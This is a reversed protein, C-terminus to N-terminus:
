HKLILMLIIGLIFSILAYFSNKLEKEKTLNPILDSASIYIFGGASVAIFFHIFNHVRGSVISGIIAGLVATLGSIFNFFLAKSIKFGGYILIGFDGLEQPIEHSIILLTTVIGM